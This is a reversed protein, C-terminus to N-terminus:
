KGARWRRRTSAPAMDIMARADALHQSAFLVCGHRDRPDTHLAAVDLFWRASALKYMISRKPSFHQNM